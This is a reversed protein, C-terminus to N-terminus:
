QQATRNGGVHGAGAQLGVLLQDPLANAVHDNGEKASHRGRGGDGAGAYADFRAPLGAQHANEM